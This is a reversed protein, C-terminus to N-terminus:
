EGEAKPLEDWTKAHKSFKDWDRRFEAENDKHTAKLSRWLKAGREGLPIVHKDIWDPDGFKMVSDPKGKPKGELLVLQGEAFSASQLEGEDDFWDCTVMGKKASRVTMKSEGGEPRVVDGPKFKPEASEKKAM